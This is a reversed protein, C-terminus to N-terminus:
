RGCSAVSVNRAVRKAPRELLVPVEGYDLCKTDSLSVVDREARIEKVEEVM